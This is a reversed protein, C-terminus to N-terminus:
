SEKSFMQSLIVELEQSDSFRSEESFDSYRNVFEKLIKVKEPIDRKSTIAKYVEKAASKPLGINNIIDLAEKILQKSEKPVLRRLAKLEGVLKKEYSKAGTASEQKLQNLEFEFARVNESLLKYFLERNLPARREDEDAELLEVAELFDIERASRDEYCLFIKKVNGKKLLTILFNKSWSRCSRAKKPLEKIRKYLKPNEEKIKQLKKLYYLLSNEDEDEVSANIKEFLGRPSTEEEETLYKADEGLAEHFAQLKAVAAAELGIESETKEVPFFNFIHIESFTTGVRNIRGVRQLVRTPNWPIDYNIIVNARHLNIGEALVDTTILIRIDDRQKGKPLNPDFNELIKDRESRGSASTYSIVGCGFEEALKKKLYEATEAFETFILIKGAEALRRDEKLLKILEEVKPDSGVEKWESYLEEIAKVDRKLNEYFEETLQNKDYVTVKGDELVEELDFSDSEEMEALLEEIREYVNIKKSMYVKGSREFEELVQRHSKLFRGLSNVFSHFSSELRKLLLVKMLGALNRQSLREINETSRKKLYFAPTYRAYTLNKITTITKNFLNDLKEDLQYYIKVPKNVKPFTVGQKELDEKYFKVVEKRTRRVMVYTFVKKRIEEGVKKLVKRYLEPNKRRDVQRIRDELKKFFAEINYIGPITPNKKKQFLLLQAKVDSPRNNYPTATVLIVSKGQCINYLNEYSKTNENRFRHAEDIIVLKYDKYDDFDEPELTPLKGSSEVKFGPVLFKRLTEEWYEKLHPPAIVLTRKRLKSALMAAIFTKGLGVVDSLFVGGHTKLKKEADIVAEVQYQLKKFGEPFPIDEENEVDVQEGFFEYLFKLYLEYPTIEDNLWTRKKVTAVVDESIDICKEWLKEFREIAFQVDTANKLEVNFELNDKLGSITFNSSGTIVRGLDIGSRSKFIYLKAHLPSHPYYKIQLKGSEIWDIFNRIAVERKLNEEFSSSSLEEVVTDLYKKKQSNIDEVLNWVDRGVQIGVIIRIKDVNELEEHIQYLGSLYFYGVIVDLEKTDNFLTKFRDIFKRGPENTFFTLDNMHSM